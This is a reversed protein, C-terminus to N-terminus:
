LVHQLVHRSSVALQVDFAAQPRAAHAYARMTCSHDAPHEDAPDAVNLSDLCAEREPGRTLWKLEPDYCGEALFRAQM